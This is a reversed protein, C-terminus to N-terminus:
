RSALTARGVGLTWSLGVELAVCSLDVLETGAGLDLDTAFTRYHLGPTIALRSATALRVGAGIEWGFDHNSSSVTSGEVNELELHQYLAGARAWSGLKRTLPRQLQVGFAYGTQETDFQGGSLPKDLPFRHWGWGVYVSAYRMLGVNLLADFGVGPKFTANGLDNTPIAPGARLETAFRRQAQAGCVTAMVLFAAVATVRGRM